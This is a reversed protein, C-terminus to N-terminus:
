RPRAVRHQADLVVSQRAQLKSCFVPVFPCISCSLCLLGRVKAFKENNRIEDELSQNEANQDLYQRTFGEQATVWRETEETNHELWQYPDHVRVEGKTESKYVDVHDSRRAQPYRNPIWQTRSPMARVSTTHVPARLTRRILEIANPARLFAGRM